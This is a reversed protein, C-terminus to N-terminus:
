SRAASADVIWDPEREEAEDEGFAEHAHGSDDERWDDQMEDFDFRGLDLDPRQGFFSNDLQGRRGFVSGHRKGGDDLARQSREVGFRIRLADSNQTEVVFWDNFGRAIGDEFFKAGFEGFIEGAFAVIEGDGEVGGACFELLADPGFEDANRVAFGNRVVIEGMADAFRGGMAGDGLSIARVWNADQDGAM